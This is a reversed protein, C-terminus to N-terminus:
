FSLGSRPQGGGEVGDAGALRDGIGLPEAAAAWEASWLAGGLRL